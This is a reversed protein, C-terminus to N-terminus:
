IKIRGHEISAAANYILRTLFHVSNPHNNGEVSISPSQQSPGGTLLMPVALAYLYFGLRHCGHAASMSAKPVCSHRRKCCWVYIYIYIYVGM